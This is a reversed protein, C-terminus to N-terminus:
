ATEGITEPPHCPGYSARAGDARVMECYYVDSQTFGLEALKVELAYTTDVPVQIYYSMWESM